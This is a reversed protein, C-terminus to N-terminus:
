SSCSLVDRLFRSEESALSDEARLSASITISFSCTLISSASRAMSLLLGASLSFLWNSARLTHWEIVNAKQILALPQLLNCEARNATSAEFIGRNPGATMHKALLACVFADGGPGSLAGVTSAPKRSRIEDRDVQLIDVDEDGGGVYEIPVRAVKVIGPFWSRVPLRM